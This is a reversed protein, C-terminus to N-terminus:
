SRSKGNAFTTAVFVKDLELTIAISAKGTALTTAVM